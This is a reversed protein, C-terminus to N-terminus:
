GTRFKVPSTKTHKRFFNNFHAAETFGLAYGIVGVSLQSNQLLAKAESLIRETIIQTTTKTLTKKLARNLHNVHINLKDAFQSASRLNVFRHESVPFQQELLVLFSTTIRQSANQLAYQKTRDIYTKRLKL